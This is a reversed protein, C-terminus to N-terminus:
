QKLVRIFAETLEPTGDPWKFYLTANPCSGSTIIKGDQVVGHGQYMGIPLPVFFGYKKGDLIKAEALIFVGSNQAAIPMGKQYASLALAVAAQPPKGRGAMCPFLVGKYDDLKVQDLKMDPTLEQPGSGLKTGTESAVEVDYGAERLLKMMPWVEKEIMFEMRESTEAAVLLVKPKDQAFAMGGLALMAVISLMLCKKM